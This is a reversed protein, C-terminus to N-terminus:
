VRPQNTEACTWQVAVTNAPGSLTFTAMAPCSGGDIAVQVQVTQGPLLTGHAPSFRISWPSPNASTGSASWPLDSQGSNQLTVVSVSRCARNDTSCSSSAIDIQTPSVALTPPPLTSSTCATLFSVTILFCVIVLCRRVWSRSASFQDIEGARQTTNRRM